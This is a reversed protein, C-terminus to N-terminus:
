WYFERVVLALWVIFFPVLMTFAGRTIKLSLVYNYRRAALQNIAIQIHEEPDRPVETAPPGTIELCRLCFWAALFFIAIFGIIGVRILERHELRHDVLGLAFTLAALVLTIFTILGASKANLAHMDEFVSEFFSKTDAGLMSRFEHYERVKQRLDKSTENRNM